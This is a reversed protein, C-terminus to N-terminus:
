QRGEALATMSSTATLDLLAWPGTIPATVTVTLLDGNTEVDVQAAEGARDTVLDRIEDTSAEMAYGRAAERAADTVRLQTMLALGLSVVLFLVAAVAPLTMALEATVM